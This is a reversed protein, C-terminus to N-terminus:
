ALAVLATSAELLLFGRFIPRLFFFPVKFSLRGSEDGTRSFRDHNALTGPTVVPFASVRGRGWGGVSPPGLVLDSDGNSVEGAFKRSRQIRGSLKRVSVPTSRPLLRMHIALFDEVVKWDTAGTETGAVPFRMTANDGINSM